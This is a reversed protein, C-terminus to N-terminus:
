PATEGRSLFLTMDHIAYDHLLAVFPTIAQAMRLMADPAAYYHGEKHEPALTSVVNFAAGRSTAAYMAGVMRGIWEAHDKGTLNFVGSSVAYDAVPLKLHPDLLDGCIFQAEPHNARGFSLADEMIDLGVYFAPAQGQAKLYALLDGRGCGVDIIRSGALPWHCAMVAFRREQSAQSGWGAIERANGHRAILDAYYGKQDDSAV